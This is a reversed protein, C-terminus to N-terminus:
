YIFLHNKSSRPIKFELFQNNIQSTIPEKFESFDISDEFILSNNLFGEYLSPNKKVIINNNFPISNVSPISNLIKEVKHSKNKIFYYELSTSPKIPEVM